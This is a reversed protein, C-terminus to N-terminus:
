DTKRVGSRVLLAAWYTKMTIVMGILLAMWSLDPVLRPAAALLAVTLVIKAIEWGFFGLM